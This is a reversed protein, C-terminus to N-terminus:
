CRFSHSSFWNHHEFICLSLELFNLCSRRIMTQDSALLLCSTAELQTIRFPSPPEPPRFFHRLFVFLCTRVSTFMILLYVSFNNHSIRTPSFYSVSLFLTPPQCAALNIQSPCFMTLSRRCFCVLITMIVIECNTIHAVICQLTLPFIKNNIRQQFLPSYVSYRLHKKPGNRQTQPHHYMANTAVTSYWKFCSSVCLYCNMMYCRFRSTRNEVVNVYCSIALFNATVFIPRICSPCSDVCSAGVIDVLCYWTEFNHKYGVAYSLTACGNCVTHRHCTPDRQQIKRQCRNFTSKERRLVGNLVPFHQTLEFLFHIFITQGNQADTTGLNRTMKNPVPGAAM